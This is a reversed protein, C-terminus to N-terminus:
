QATPVEILHVIPSLQPIIKTLEGDFFLEHPYMTSM